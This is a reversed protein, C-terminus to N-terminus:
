VETSYIKEYLITNVKTFEKKSIKKPYSMLYLPVAKKNPNYAPQTYDYKNLCFGLKEYFDIRRKAQNTNPKEVELIIKKDYKSIINKTIQAGYGKGRLNKDIALHEIFIFDKLLWFAVFGVLSGNNYIPTFNYLCNNLIKQQQQLSRREDEPFASEYIKWVENFNRM